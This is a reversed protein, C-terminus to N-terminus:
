LREGELRKLTADTSAIMESNEFHSFSGNAWSCDAVAQRSDKNGKYVRARLWLAYGLGSYNEHLADLKVVDDLYRPASYYEAKLDQHYSKAYLAAALLPSDATLDSNMQRTHDIKYNM